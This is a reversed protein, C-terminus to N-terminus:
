AFCRTFLSPPHINKTKWSGFGARPRADKFVFICRLLVKHLDVRIGQSRRDLRAGRLLLVGAAIVLKMDYVDWLVFANPLGGCECVLTAYRHITKSDKSAFFFERLKQNKMNCCHIVERPRESSWRTGSLGEPSWM